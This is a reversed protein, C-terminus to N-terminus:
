NVVSKPPCVLCCFTYVIYDVATESFFFSWVALEGECIPPSREAAAAVAGGSVVTASCLVSLTQISIQSGTLTCAVEPQHDLM